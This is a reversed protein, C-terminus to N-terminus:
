LGEDALVSQIDLNIIGETSMSQLTSLLAHNKNDIAKVLTQTLQAQSMMELDRKSLPKDDIRACHNCLECQNPHDENFYGLLYENLCGDTNIYGLMATLRDEKIQKLKAYRKAKYSFDKQNLRGENFTIILGQPLCHHNILRKSKLQQFYGIVQERNKKLRVAMRDVNIKNWEDVHDAYHRMLYDRVSSLPEELNAQRLNRPTVAYRINHIDRPNDDISLCNLKSLAQLQNLVTRSGKGIYKALPILNLPGRKGEGENILNNYFRHAKSYTSYLSDFSPFESSARSQHYTLDSSNYLLSASSMAGNRGARGIEQYYEELSPPIDYHIIQAIDPIDIGMGFANTSAIVQTKTKLFQEQIKKKAGFSLGAHYYTANIHHSRLFSAIMEVNRRSRTYIITKAHTLKVLKLLDNMKDKSKNLNLKINDRLFSDRVIATQPITLQECIEAITNDNATGTLAIIRDPKKLDIFEKILQYAPRFDHGWQSICHAEDVALMAIHYQSLRKLFSESRLREPSVYLLKTQDYNINSLLRDIDNNSLGSHIAKAQIKRNKLASVQDEMLAILPSIVLTIGDLQLSPLQYCLSKGGGTPLLALVRNNESLTTLVSEQKPRLSGYNWHQKLDAIAKNLLISGM